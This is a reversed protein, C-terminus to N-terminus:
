RIEKYNLVARTASTGGIGSVLLTYTGMLRTAGARDLSLPFKASIKPPLIIPTVSPPNNGGGAGAIYGAAMVVGGTLNTFSGPVSTYEYGSYSTNVDAWTTGSLTAGCVLEWYVANTGTVIAMIDIIEFYQRNVISNYTTKPRISVIPTRAGSAATATVEPTALMYGLLDMNGGESNVCYCKVQATKTSGTATATILTQAPLSASQMYPVTLSNANNFAHCYYIVGDIDWGIRVRGMGLFQLDIILIQGNTMDLTKGSVGTGDMKDISWSSQAVATDVVSGSTSSRQIVQLNTTGNQRFFIGNLLDFYGADFTADAVAAGAVFTLAIFQSRGPQYPFYLYSQEGSTGTGATCSLTNMRTNASHTPLVGTGTNFGEMQLAAKSYQHQLNFINEPASIRLRSFADGAANDTDVKTTRFISM